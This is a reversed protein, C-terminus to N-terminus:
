NQENEEPVEAMEICESIHTAQDPHMDETYKKVMFAWKKNSMNLMQNHPVTAHSGDYYRMNKALEPNFWGRRWIWYYGIEYEANPDYKKLKLKM